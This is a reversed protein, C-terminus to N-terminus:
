PSPPSSLIARNLLVRLRSGPRGTAPPFDKPLSPLRARLKKADKGSIKIMKLGIVDSHGVWSEIGWKSLLNQAFDIDTDTAGRVWLGVTEDPFNMAWAYPDAMCCIVKFNDVNDEGRIRIVNGYFATEHQAPISFNNELISLANEVQTPSYKKVSFDFVDEHNGNPLEISGGEWLLRQLLSRQIDKGKRSNLRQIFRKIFRDLM